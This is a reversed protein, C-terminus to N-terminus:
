GILAAQALALSSQVPLDRPGDLHFQYCWLFSSAGARLLLSDEAIGRFIVASDAHFDRLLLGYVLGDAYRMFNSLRVALESGGSLVIGTVAFVEIQFQSSLAEFLKKLIRVAVFVLEALDQQSGAALVSPSFCGGLGVIVLQNIGLDRGQRTTDDALRLM